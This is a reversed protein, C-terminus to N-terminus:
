WKSRISDLQLDQTSLLILDEKSPQPNELLRVAQYRISRELINRVHRANSFSQKCDNLQFQLHRKLKQRAQTSLRYEREDLMMEAIEMLEDLGYDPFDVQIPFRSPLGPNSNMFEKM